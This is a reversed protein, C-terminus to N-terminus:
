IRGKVTLAIFMVSAGFLFSLIWYQKSNWFIWLQGPTSETESKTVTSPITQAKSELQTNTQIVLNPQKPTSGATGIKKVSTTAAPKSEVVSFDVTAKLNNQDININGHCYTKLAWRVISDAQANTVAINIPIVSSDHANQQPITVASTETTTTTKIASCGTFIFALLVCILSATKM